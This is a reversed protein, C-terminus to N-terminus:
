DEYLENKKTQRYAEKRRLYEDDGLVKMDKVPYKEELKKMKEFYYKPFDIGCTEIFMFLYNFVDVLEYAVKKKEEETEPVYEIGHWQFKESLEGMEIFASLLLSKTERNSKQWGDGRSSVFDVMMNKLEEFIVKKPDM